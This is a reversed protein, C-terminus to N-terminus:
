KRKVRKSSSAASSSPQSRKTSQKDASKFPKSDRTLAYPQLNPNKALKKKGEEYNKLLFKHFKTGEATYQSSFVTKIGFVSAFSGNEILDSSKTEQTFPVWGPSQLEFAQTSFDGANPVPEFMDPLRKYANKKLKGIAIIQNSLGVLCM